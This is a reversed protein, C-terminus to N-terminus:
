SPIVKVDERAMFMLDVLRMITQVDMELREAEKIDEPTIHNQTVSEGM